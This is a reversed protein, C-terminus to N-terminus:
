EEKPVAPDGEREEPPDPRHGQPEHDPNMAHKRAAWREIILQKARSLALALAPVDRTITSGAGIYAGTRVKVPAVLQTDSGIFVGDEIITKHKAKGDYNCTITGAGINVNDGIESDGLYSLHSAKTGKGIVSKKVEVFNGIKSSPGIACHPRLHAFPGIVARDMVTSSEIVTSDKIEVHDGITSDVIRVHPFITCGSGVTTAGELFVGPYIVTDPGIAVTRHIYASARDIFTVGNAMWERVVRDRLHQGAAALDERTNIGTFEIEDGLMHGGVSYGRSVALAVLDTLYYEGKAPNLAIDHLLSLAQPEFAYVGSNVEAIRKQAETADREEVKARVEGGTRIIRGYSSPNVANFSLLSVAEGRERHLDLFQRLTETRILPTDGNLVLVTGREAGLTGLAAKLADGTGKPEDQIAFRVPFGKVADQVCASHRGIVIINQQAGLPIVSDVVHWVVPRGLLNHVVKPTTSKMRTGLGAALIVASLNVPYGGRCRGGDPM